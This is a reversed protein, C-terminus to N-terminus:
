LVFLYRLSCYLPFFSGALAVDVPVVEGLGSNNNMHIM